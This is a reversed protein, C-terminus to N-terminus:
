KRNGPQLWGAQDTCNLTSTNVLLNSRSTSITLSALSSPVTLNTQEKQYIKRANKDLYEVAALLLDKNDKFLGLAVNCSNCLLGRIKGSLHSHDVSFRKKGDNLEEITLSCIACKHDQQNLRKNYEEKDMGFRSKIHSEYQQQKKKETTPLHNM